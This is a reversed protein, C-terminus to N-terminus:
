IYDKKFMIKRVSQVFTNLIGADPTIFLVLKFVCLFVIQCFIAAGTGYLDKANFFFNYIEDTIFFLSINEHIYICM